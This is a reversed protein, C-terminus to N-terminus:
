YRFAYNFERPFDEYTGSLIVLEGASKKKMIDNFDKVSKVPVDNVKTIIFGERMDTYRAVKGGLEKVRVGNELDLRKLAKSDLDELELGLSATSEKEEPRVVETKGTKSKLVVPVTVVKGKRNVTVNVKDGPRHRGIYEILATNTKIVANDIKVVVDGKQLGADKASSKDAFDAIYAGETVELDEQKALESNVTQITVGLWGRQVVGFSILDEVIKSVINSPNSDRELAWTVTINVAIFM